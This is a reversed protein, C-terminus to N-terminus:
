EANPEDELVIPESVAIDPVVPADFAQEERIRDLEAQAQEDDWGPHAEKIATLKSMLGSGVLASVRTTRDSATETLVPPWVVNVVEYPCEGDVSGGEFVVWQQVLMVRLISELSSEWASMKMSKKDTATGESSVIETATRLGSGNRNQVLANPDFGAVGAILTVLADEEARLEEMLGTVPAQIVPQMPRGDEDITKNLVLFVDQDYDAPDYGAGPSSEHLLNEPIMVRLRNNQKTKLKRAHTWDLQGFESEVGTYDSGGPNEHYVVDLRGKLGTLWSDGSAEDFLFRYGAADPHETVPVVRGLSSSDSSAFLQVTVRSYGEDDLDHLEVLRYLKKDSYGGGIPAEESKLDPLEYVFYVDVIVDNVITPVAFQPDIFKLRVRDDLDANWQTTLWVGGLPSACTQEADSATMFFKEDTLFSLLEKTAKDNSTGTPRKGFVMTAALRSIGFPLPFHAENKARAGSSAVPTSDRLWRRRTAPVTPTSCDNVVSPKDTVGNYIDRWRSYSSRGVALPRPPYVSNPLPLPM